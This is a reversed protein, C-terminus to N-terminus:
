QAREHKLRHEVVPTVFDMIYVTREIPHDKYLPEKSRIPFFLGCMSMLQNGRENNFDSDEYIFLHTSYTM